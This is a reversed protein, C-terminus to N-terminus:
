LTALGALCLLYTFPHPNTMLRNTPSPAVYCGDDYTVRRCTCLPVNMAHHKAVSGAAFHGTCLTFGSFGHVTCMMTSTHHILVM